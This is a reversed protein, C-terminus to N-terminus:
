KGRSRRSVRMLVVGALAFCALASTAPEPVLEFAGVDVRSIGDHNGDIIRPHGVIDTSLLNLASNNGADIGISGALLEHSPGFSPNGAFNGNVGAYTGDSILSNSISGNTFVGIDDTNKLIMNEFSATAGQTVEVGTTFGVVTNNVLRATATSFTDKTVLIGTQPTSSGVIVNNIALLHDNVQAIPFVGIGSGTAVASPVFFNNTATVDAVMNGTGGIGLTDDFLNKNMTANVHLSGTGSVYVPGLFHSSQFNATIALDGTGSLYVAGAIEDNQFTINSFTTSTGSISVAQSGYVGIGFPPMPGNDGSQLKLGTFLGGTSSNGVISQIAPSGLQFSPDSYPDGKITPHFGPGATLTLFRDQWFLTGVFTQNSDIEITTGTVASGVAAALNDGDHIVITSACRGRDAACALLILTAIRAILLSRNISFNM